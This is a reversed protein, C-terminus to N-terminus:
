FGASRFELEVRFARACLAHVVPEPSQAVMGRTISSLVVQNSKIQGSVNPTSIEHNQRWEVVFLLM